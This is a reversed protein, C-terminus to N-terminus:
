CIITKINGGNGVESFYKVIANAAEKNNDIVRNDTDILILDKRGAHKSARIKNYTDLLSMDTYHNNWFSMKAKEVTRRAKWYCLKYQEKHKNTGYKYLNTRAKNREKIAIKCADNWWPNGVPKNAKTRKCTIKGTELLAKNLNNFSFQNEKEFKEM